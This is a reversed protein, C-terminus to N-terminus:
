SLLFSDIESILIFYQLTTCGEWVRKERSQIQGFTHVLNDSDSDRDSDSESDNGNDSDNDNNNLLFLPYMFLEIKGQHILNKAHSLVEKDEESFNFIDVWM